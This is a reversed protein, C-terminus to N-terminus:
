ATRKVITSTPIFGQKRKMQQLKLNLQFKGTSTQTKMLSSYNLNTPQNKLNPIAQQIALYHHLGKKFTKTEM